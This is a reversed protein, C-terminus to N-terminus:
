LMETGLANNKYWTIPLIPKMIPPEPKLHEYFPPIPLNAEFWRRNSWYEAIESESMVKRDVLNGVAAFLGKPRKTYYAIEEIYIRFFQAEILPSLKKM